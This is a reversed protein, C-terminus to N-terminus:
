TCNAGTCNCVSARCTCSGTTQCAISCVDGTCTCRSSDACTISCTGDSTQCDATCTDSGNCQFSCGGTQGATCTFSKPASSCAPAVCALALLLAAVRRLPVHKM